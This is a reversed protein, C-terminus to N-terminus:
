LGCIKKLTREEQAPSEPANRLVTGPLSSLAAREEDEEGREEGHRGFGRLLTRLLM